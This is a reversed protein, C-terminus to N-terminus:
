GLRSPIRREARRFLMLILASIAMYGVALLLLPPYIVFTEQRVRDSVAYLDVVTITAVLPTAKLQLVSEGSLTTLARRFALPGWIRRLTTLRSMGFARAAEIEGRAVGIFAARMVEGEYGAFSLTLSLLAYPWASRLWPWAWSDRLWHLQPFISGLGYYLMWLQLLLPTGRIVACFARAPVAAYWPGIAQALGLWVALLLGISWSAALLWLTTWLGQLIIGDQWYVALWDWRMRAACLMVLAAAVLLLVIRHPRLLARFGGTM